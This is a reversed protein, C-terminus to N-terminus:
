QALAPRVAKTLSNTPYEHFGSGESSSLSKSIISVAKFTQNKEKGTRIVANAM